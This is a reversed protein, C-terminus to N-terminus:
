SQRIDRKSRSRGPMAYSIRDNSDRKRRHVFHIVLVRSVFKPTTYGTNKEPDKIGLVWHSPERLCRPATFPPIILILIYRSVGLYLCFFFLSELFMRVLEASRRM